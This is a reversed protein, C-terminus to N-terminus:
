FNKVFLVSSNSVTTNQTLFLAIFVVNWYNKTCIHMFFLQIAIKKVNEEFTSFYFVAWKKGITRVWHISMDIIRIKRLLKTLTTIWIMTSNSLWLSRNKWLFVLIFYHIFYLYLLLFRSRQFHTKRSVNSWTTCFTSNWFIWEYKRLAM